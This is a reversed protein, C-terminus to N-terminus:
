HKGLHAMRAVIEDEWDLVDSDPVRGERDLGEVTRAIGEELSLRPRWDPLDRRIKEGSWWADHSFIESCIRIGPVGWEELRGLPVGVQEVESGLVRMVARHYEEWALPDPKVLNYTEGFCPKKGLIQVFAMAADEVSLFQHRAQGDDCVLIPKGKRIRDIFSHELAIQRPLGMIPGFTTSPKFVTVPFGEDQYAHRFVLDAAVKDRGYDTIPHCPHDEGVPLSEFDVGYTCVTSCHVFHGVGRFAELSAEAEERTFCIMDIAADFKVRRAIEVLATRDHRDVEIWRAGSHPAGSKGRNLCVTEHGAEVLLPVISASINGTGGLIGVKM